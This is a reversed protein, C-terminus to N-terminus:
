SAPYLRGEQTAYSRNFHIPTSYIEIFQITTVSPNPLHFSNSNLDVIIGRRRQIQSVTCHISVSRKGFVNGKVWTSPVTHWGEPDAEPGLIPSNEQYALQRLPSPAM